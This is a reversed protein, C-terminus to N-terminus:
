PFLSDIDDQSVIDADSSLAPGNLLADDGERTDSVEADEIRGWIELMTDIRGEIFQLLGVVKSIRQGTIDQFNCAEFIRIAEARIEAVKQAHAGDPKEELERAIDDIVEAATLITNTAGETDSVVADLEDAARNFNRGGVAKAHMATIESRTQHIAEQIVEVGDWLTRQGDQAESVRHVIARLEELEAFIRQLHVAAGAAQGHSPQSAQSAACIPKHIASM